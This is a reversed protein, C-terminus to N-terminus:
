SRSRQSNATARVVVWGAVPLRIGGAELYPALAGHLSRDLAACAAPVIGALVQAASAAWRAAPVTTAATGCGVDAVTEGVRLDADRRPSAGPPAPMRGYHGPEAVWGARAQAAARLVGRSKENM